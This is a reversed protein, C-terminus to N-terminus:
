SCAQLLKLIQQLPLISIGFDASSPISYRGRNRPKHRWTKANLCAPTPVASWNIVNIVDSHTLFGNPVAEVKGNLIATPLNKDYFRIDYSTEEVNFADATLSQLLTLFLKRNVKKLKMKLKLISNVTKMTRCNDPSFFVHRNIWYTFLDWIEYM